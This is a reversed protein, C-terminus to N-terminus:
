VKIGMLKDRRRYVWYIYFILGAGSVTTFIFFHMYTAFMLGIQTSKKLILFGSVISAHYVGIASPASPVAFSMSGLFLIFVMETLNLDVELMVISYYYAVCYMLWMIVTLIVPYIFNKIQLFEELDVMHTGIHKRYLKTRNIKKFFWIMIRRLWRNHYRLLYLPVSLGIVIFGSVTFIAYSGSQDQTFYLVSFSVIGTLIVFLFDIVKEIFLKSLLSFLKEGSENRCYYMRFLDGGRAPLVNNAAYGIYSSSVAHKLRIKQNVLYYWRVSFVAIGMLQGIAAPILYTYDVKDWMKKFEELDFKYALVIVFVLSVSLGFLFRKM